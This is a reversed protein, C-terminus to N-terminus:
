ANNEKKTMGFINTNEHHFTLMFPHNLPISVNDNGDVKCQDFGHVFM